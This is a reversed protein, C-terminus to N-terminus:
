STLDKIISYSKILEEEIGKKCNAPSTSPLYIAEIGTKNKCYKNYLNHAKRGTTFIYKINSKKLISNINNPTVNKITADSSSKIECSKIVDWLAIKHKTLFEKKEVITQPIRENYISSITKWFRNQPHAYYFKEERSKVSPISGLILVISDKNYFSEFEHFVKM